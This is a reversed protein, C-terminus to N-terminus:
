GDAKPDSYLGKIKEDLKARRERREMMTAHDDVLDTLGTRIATGAKSGFTVWLVALALAGAAMMEENSM